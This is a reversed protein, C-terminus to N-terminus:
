VNFGFDDLNFHDLLDLNRGRCPAVFVGLLVDVDQCRDHIAFLMRVSVLHHKGSRHDKVPYLIGTKRIRDFLHDVLDVTRKLLICRPSLSEDSLIERLFTVPECLDKESVSRNCRALNYVM